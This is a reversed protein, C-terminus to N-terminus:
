VHARGIQFELYRYHNSSFLTGGSFVLGNYSQTSAFTLAATGAPPQLVPYAAYGLGVFTGELGIASEQAIPFVEGNTAASYIQGGQVYIKACTVINGSAGAVYPMAQQIAYRITRYGNPSPPVTSSPDWNLGEYGSGPADVGTTSNVYFTHQQPSQAQLTWGLLLAALAFQPSISM